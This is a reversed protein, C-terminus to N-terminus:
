DGRIQTQAQGYIIYVNYQKLKFFFETQKQPIYYVFLHM